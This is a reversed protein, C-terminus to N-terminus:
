VACSPSSPAPVSGFGRCEGFNGHGPIVPWVYAATSSQTHALPGAWGCAPPRIFGQDHQGPLSKDYAPHRHAPYSLSISISISNRSANRQSIIRTAAAAQLQQRQHQHQHQQPLTKMDQLSIRSPDLPHSLSSASLEGAAGISIWPHIRSQPSAISYSYGTRPGDQVKGQGPALVCCTCWRWIWSSSTSTRLRLPSLPRDRKPPGARRTQYGHWRLARGGALCAGTLAHLHGM